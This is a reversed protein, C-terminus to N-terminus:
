PLMHGLLAGFFLLPGLWANSRFLALCRAPDDIDLRRWQYLYLHAAAGLLAVHWPWGMQALMGAALLGLLFLAYFLAIARSTASGLRRASSRIGTAADDKRDMHAYITDYGLTWFLCGTYLALAPWGLSERAAAWGMLAGWNFTLGLVIQPWWTVRKALPYVAVLPLSAIGIWISFRPLQVLLLFGLMSLLIAFALAGMVSIEGAPIPRLATRAVRADLKRDLIDNWACGASRMLLAGLFFVTAHHWFRFSDAPMALALSWLCPWMLLWYGAPRDVRALRAWPRLRRPLRALLKHTADPTAREGTM